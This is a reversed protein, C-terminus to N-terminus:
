PMSRDDVAKMEFPISLEEFTKPLYKVFFSEIKKGLYMEGHGLLIWNPNIGLAENFLCSILPLAPATGKKLIPM